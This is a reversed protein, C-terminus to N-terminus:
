IDLDTRFHHRKLSCSSGYCFDYKVFLEWFLFRSSWPTIIVSLFEFSRSTFHAEAQKREATSHTHRLWKSHIFSSIELKLSTITLYVVKGWTKFNWEPSWLAPNMFFALKASPLNFALPFLVTIWQRPLPSYYQAQIMVKILFNCM